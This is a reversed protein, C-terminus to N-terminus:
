VRTANIKTECEIPYIYATPHLSGVEVKEEPGFLSVSQAGAGEATALSNGYKGGGRVFWELASGEWPSVGSTNADRAKVPSASTSSAAFSDPAASGYRALDRRSCALGLALAVPLLAVM